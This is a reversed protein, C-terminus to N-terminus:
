VIGSGFIRLSDEALGLSKKLVIGGEGGGGGGGGGTLFRLRSAFRVMRLLIM